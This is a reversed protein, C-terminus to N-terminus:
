FFEEALPEYDIELFDAVCPIWQENIFAVHTPHHNYQQYQEHTSFEMSLGYQFANKESVQKWSKFNIVGPINTLEVAAKFFQKIRPSDINEKISFIVSHQIM